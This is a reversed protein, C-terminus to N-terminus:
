PFSWGSKSGWPHIVELIGQGREEWLLFSLFSLPHTVALRLSELGEQVTCLRPSWLKSVKSLLSRM